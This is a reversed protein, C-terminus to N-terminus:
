PWCGRGVARTQRDDGIGSRTHHGRVGQCTRAQFRCGKTPYGAAARRKEAARRSGRCGWRCGRLHRLRKRCVSSTQKSSSSISLTQTIKRGLGECVWCHRFGPLCASPRLYGTNAQQIPPFLTASAKYDEIFCADRGIVGSRGMRAKKYMTSYVAVYLEEPFVGLSVLSTTTSEFFGPISARADITLEHGFFVRSINKRSYGEM